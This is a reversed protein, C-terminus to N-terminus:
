ATGTKSCTTSRTPSGPTASSPASSSPRATPSTAAPSAAPCCWWRPRGSPRRWRRPRSPWCRRRDPQAGGRDGARHGGAPLGRATDYECNTGPFVPIVARPRAIRPSACRPPAGTGPSPSWRGAQRRDPHPLGGGAGGREPDAARRHPRQRRRHQRRARRHHPGDPVPRRGVRGDCRPWSPAPSPSSCPRRKRPDEAAFGVRNGFSMKMVAEALRRAGGGLRRQGQRGPLVARPLRGLSGQLGDYDSM